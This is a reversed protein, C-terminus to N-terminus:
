KKTLVWLVEDDYGYIRMTKSSIKFDYHYTAPGRTIYNVNKEPIYFTGENDDDMEYTFSASVVTKHESEYGTKSLPDSTRPSGELTLEFFGKESKNFTISIQDKGDKGSWEGVVGTDEKDDDDDGCSAFGVCVVAAMLFALLSLSLKKM